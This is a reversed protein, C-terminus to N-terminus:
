RNTSSQGITAAMEIDSFEFTVSFQEIQNNADQSLEIPAVVSPWALMLRFEKIRNGYSDLQYVFVDSMYDDPVHSGTNANYTNIQNSWKELAERIGFDTDNVFTCDWSEFTRDGALKLFRGRFPQEITGLTSGPIQTSSVLFRTNNIVDASAFPINIIIEFRNGRAGGGKLAAKFNHISSM